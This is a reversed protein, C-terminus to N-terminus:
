FPLLKQDSLGTSYLHSTDNLRFIARENLETTGLVSVSAPSTRFSVNSLTEADLGLWWAVINIITGGHTAIITPRDLNAQLGDLYKSVRKYFQRWTEAGPYCQWDLLPERPECFYQKAEEKSKGAAVGNNLERLEQAPMPTLGLEGGVIEATELARKLDSCYLVCHISELEKKLRSALAVVQLRGLQTLETDTWGGTLGGTLHEAQGHRILILTEMVPRENTFIERLLFKTKLVKHTQSLQIVLYKAKVPPRCGFYLTFYAPVSIGM